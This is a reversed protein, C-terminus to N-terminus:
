DDGWLFELLDSRGNKEEETGDRFLAAGPTGGHGIGELVINDKDDLGVEKAHNHYRGPSLNGDKTGTYVRVPIKGYMNDFQDIYYGALVAARHINVTRGAYNYYLGVGGGGNSFGALSIKDKNINYGSNNLFDNIVGDLRQLESKDHWGDNSQM